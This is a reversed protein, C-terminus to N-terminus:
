ARDRAAGAVGGSQDICCDLCATEVARQGHYVERFRSITVLASHLRQERAM